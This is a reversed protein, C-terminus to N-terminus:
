IDQQDKDKSQKFQVITRDRRISDLKKYDAFADQM